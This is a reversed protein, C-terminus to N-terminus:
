EAVPGMTSYLMDGEQVTVQDTGVQTTTLARGSNDFFRAKSLRVSGNPPIVDVRQVFTGNIWVNADRVPQNTFNILRISDNKQLVAINATKAKADAPYRSTAAYAALQATEDRSTNSGMPPNFSAGASCGALSIAALSVLVTRLM